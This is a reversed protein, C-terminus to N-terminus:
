GGGFAARYQERIAAQKEPDGRADSLMKKLTARDLKTSGNAPPPKPDLGAAIREKIDGIDKKRAEVVDAKFAELEERNDTAPVVKRYPQMEPNDMLFTLKVNERRLTANEQSLKTERDLSDKTANTAKDLQERLSSVESGLRTQLNARELVAANLQSHLEINEQQVERAKAEAKDKLSMLNRIRQEADSPSTSVAPPSAPTSGGGVPEGDVTVDVEDGM